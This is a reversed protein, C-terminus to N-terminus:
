FSQKRGKPTLKNNGMKNDISKSTAIAILFNEINLESTEVHTMQFTNHLSMHTSIILQVCVCMVLAYPWISM